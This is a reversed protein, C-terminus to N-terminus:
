LQAVPVLQSWPVVTGVTGVTGHYTPVLKYLSRGCYLSVVTFSLVLEDLSGVTGYM